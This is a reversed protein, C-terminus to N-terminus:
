VTIHLVTGGLRSLESSGIVEAGDLSASQWGNASLLEAVTGTGQAIVMPARGNTFELRTM